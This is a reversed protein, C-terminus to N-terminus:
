RTVQIHHYCGDCSMESETMQIVAMAVTLLRGTSGKFIKYMTCQKYCIWAYLNEVHTGYLDRGGLFFVKWRCQPLSKAHM